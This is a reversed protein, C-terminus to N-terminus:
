SRDRDISVAIGRSQGSHVIKGQRKGLQEPM